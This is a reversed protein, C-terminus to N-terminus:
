TIVIVVVHIFMIKLIDLLIILETLVMKINKQLKKEVYIVLLM